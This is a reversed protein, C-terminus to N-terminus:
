KKRYHSLELRRKWIYHKLIGNNYFRMKNKGVKDWRGMNIIM